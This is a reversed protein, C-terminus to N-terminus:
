RSLVGPVALRSVAPDRVLMALLGLEGLVKTVVPSPRVVGLAIGEHLARGRAALLTAVGAYCLATVEEMDIAVAEPAKALCTSIASDLSTADGQEVSGAVTVTTVHASSRTALALSTARSVSRSVSRSAQSVPM